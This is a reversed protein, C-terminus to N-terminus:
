GKLELTYTSTEKLPLLPRGFSFSHGPGNNTTMHTQPELSQREEESRDPATPRETDPKRKGLHLLLQTLSDWIAGILYVSWGYVTHLAYGHVLTDLILKFIRTFLYIGIMGASINGFILFKSWFKQWASLAYKEISAEDILNAISGGHLSTSQGMVGRAVTNLVAPREAPFMIHDKLDELDKPTYIGSTALAGPSVYKWVPKTMPKMITPAVTEVPKPMIKYWADGLLYMPPAFSNCNIQTGQRLLIHTQPTLFHTRNNLIVPLQEYCDETHTLKVEVPVCKVIHIVEGALLAMYGPGKMFHYAFIDPSRAAIALANQMMKLELRCQQLLINRYLQNLQGRIHKEVYVFKSNMYTFLDLNAVRGTGKALNDEPLTEVIVLKPHETRIFLFGCTRYRSTSTLSFVTDQANVTYMILSRENVLDTVKEAYGRYLQNYSTFRCAEDPIPSWYTSGGEIDTCQTTSFDCAVGSRLYLRNTSLKVDATYDQLTITVSALVLVNTWSGYPDSYVGGTCDGDSDVVGALTVPRSASQNSKLGTILTGSIEFSGYTHMRTCADRTVDAVYSYKGNHVDSNHSFMGCVRISRDVEVKCQIVKVSQFETLQLLHM